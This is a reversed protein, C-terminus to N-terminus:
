KSLHILQKLLIEYLAENYKFERLKRIYATGISPMRDTSLIVDPNGSGDTKELKSVQERLGKLEEEFRQIDPNQPTAYTKMVKTQVEKEAIQARLQAIGEM